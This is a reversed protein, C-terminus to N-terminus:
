LTVVALQLQGDTGISVVGQSITLLGTVRVVGSIAVPDAAGTKGVTLGFFTLPNGALTQSTSGSLTFVRTNPELVGGTLAELDEPLSVASDLTVILGNPIVYKSGAPCSGFAVSWAVTGSGVAICTGTYVSYNQGTLNATVSGYTRSVPSFTAGAKSPTVTGSWGHSIGFSYNGSGDATTSGGTYAVTAGAGLSGLGGSITYTNLTATFNQNSLNAM